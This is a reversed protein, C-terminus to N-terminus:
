RFWEAGTNFVLVDSVDGYSQKHCFCYLTSDEEADDIEDEEEAMEVAKRSTRSRGSSPAPSAVKGLTLKREAMMLCTGSKEIWASKLAPEEVSGEIEEEKAVPEEVVCVNEGQLMRVKTLDYDLRARTRTMLSIMRKSLAMKEETLRKLEEYASQIRPGKSSAGPTPPGGKLSAKIYKTQDKTLESELEQCREERFKIEALM